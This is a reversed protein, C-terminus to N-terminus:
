LKDKIVHYVSYPKKLIPHVDNECQICIKDKKYDLYNKLFLRNLKHVQPHNMYEDLKMWKCDALEFQSKKIDVNLPKLSIVVYLDSCGFTGGHGHRLTLLSDFKTKINTEEFVERIAADILNEGPEVYGGPLKWHDFKLHNEQVVLIEDNENVVLCGVGLTTHAYPPIACPEDKPLWKYLMIYHEKAHHFKFGSKTLVPVWESHEMFVKFWIGRLKQNDWYKLSEELKMPFDKIDCDEVESSIIIGNYRDMFGRLINPNRYAAMDVFKRRINLNNFVYGRYWLINVYRISFKRLVRVLYM